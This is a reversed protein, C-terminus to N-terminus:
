GHFNSHLVHLYFSILFIVDWSGSVSWLGVSSGFIAMSCYCHMYEDLIVSM